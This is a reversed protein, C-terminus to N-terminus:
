NKKLKNAKLEEFIKRIDEEVQKELTKCTKVLTNSKELSEYEFQFHEDEDQNNMENITVTVTNKSDDGVGRLKAKIKCDYFFKIKGRTFVVYTDGSYDSFSDIVFTKNYEKQNNAVYSNFFEELQRKPIQKEEWTEAKNWASGLSNTNQNIDVPKDTKQPQFGKHDAQIDSDRKWFTYSPKEFNDDKEAKKSDKKDETKEAKNEPKDSM